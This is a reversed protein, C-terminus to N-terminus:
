IQHFFQKRTQQVLNSWNDWNIRGYERPYLTEINLLEYKTYTESEDFGKQVYRTHYIQITRCEDYFANEAKRLAKREEQKANDRKKQKLLKEAEKKRQQKAKFKALYEDINRM